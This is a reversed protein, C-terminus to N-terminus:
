SAPTARVKQGADLREAGKVVVRDGAALDGDVAVLNGEESGPEVAIREALGVKSIRFVYTNDERLVLADRPVALVDKPPASPLLVRVAEGVLADAKSITLRIEITRSNVDGVPVATRVKTVVPKGEVMVTVPTGPQLFRAVAIPAPASVEIDDIDVLRVVATGTSAYEGPNILRQAVRGPFPARIQSHDLDYKSKALSAEAEALQAKDVDRTSIASDRDSAAVANARALREMRTAQLQDYHLTARLRAVEATDSDYQMQMLHQDLRAVVDGQKFQDGVDAVWEVNGDVEAAVHSDYRSVVTGPVALKPAMKVKKVVAVSVAVPGNDQAFSSSGISFLVALFLWRLNRSKRM